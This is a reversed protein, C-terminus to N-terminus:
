FHEILGVAALIAGAIAVAIAMPLEKNSDAPVGKQAAGATTARAM